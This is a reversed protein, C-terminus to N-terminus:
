IWMLRGDNLPKISGYSPSIRVQEDLRIVASSENTM